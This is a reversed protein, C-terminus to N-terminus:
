WPAYSFLTLIDSFTVGFFLVIWFGIVLFPGFPLESKMTFHNGGAAFLRPPISGFLRPVLLLLIGVFAGSWFAIFLASVGGSLGLLAGIGVVLKADGLGMWTGRSLLWALFFPFALLPGVVWASLPAPAFTFPTLMFLLSFVGLGALPYSFHDPIVLHRLDYAFILISLSVVALFFLTDAPPLLLAYVGFYLIGTLVEVAPYSLSIRSGCFRCHGRLLLYSLVPILDIAALENGCSLCRSRGTLPLAHFRYLVVNFFSGIILGLVAFFFGGFFDM